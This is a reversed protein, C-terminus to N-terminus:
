HAQFSFHINPQLFSVLISLSSINPFHLDIQIKVLGCITIIKWLKWLIFLTYNDIILFILIFQKLDLFKLRIKYEYAEQLGQGYPSRPAVWRLEAPGRGAAHAVGRGHWLLGPRLTGAPWQRASRREVWMSMPELPRALPRQVRHRSICLRSQRKKNKEWIHSYRRKMIRVTKM